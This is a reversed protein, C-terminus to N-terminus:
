ACSKMDCFNKPGRFFAVGKTMGLSALFREQHEGHLISSLNRAESPIVFYFASDPLRLRGMAVLGDVDEVV